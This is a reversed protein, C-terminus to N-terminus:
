NTIHQKKEHEKNYESRGQTRPQQNDQPPLVKPSYLPSKDVEAGLRQYKPRVGACRPLTIIADNSNKDDKNQEKNEHQLDSKDFYYLM